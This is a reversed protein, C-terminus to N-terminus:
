LCRSFLRPRPRGLVLHHHRSHRYRLDPQRVHRDVKEVVLHKVGNDEIFKMAERFIRRQENKSASEAIEYSKLPKLGKDIAYSNLLRKQAPLSYGEDEQRKSSVRAIIVAKNADSM